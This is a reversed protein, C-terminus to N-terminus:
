SRLEKKNHYWRHGLRCSVIIDGTAPTSYTEARRSCTPCREASAYRWIARDREARPSGRVRERM